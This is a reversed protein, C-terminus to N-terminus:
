YGTVVNRMEHIAREYNDLEEEDRSDWGVNWVELGQSLCDLGDLRGRPFALYEQRLEDFHRAMYIQGARFLPQLGKIRRESDKEGKPIYARYPITKLQPEREIREELWYRLMKQLGNGEILFLQPLWKENQRIIEDIIVNTPVQKLFVDLIYIRRKRVDVGTTIVAARSGTFRNKADAAPDCFSFLMLNDTHVIETEGAPLSVTLIKGEEDRIDYYKLYESRFYAVESSFPDNAYQAAYREPNKEQMRDFYDVTFGEPYIAKGDEKAGRRFVAIDGRQYSFPGTKVAEQGKGFFSEAFAYVDDTRWFTSPIDMLSESMPPIFLSELGTFWDITKGMEQPSYYEDEGILDDANIINYHRSVAAGRAGITDFAPEGHKLSAPLFLQEKSWIPSQSVDEWLEERFLWKLLRNTELQLKIKALHKQANTATDGVILIRQSSDRLISQIRHAVTVITTKFHSRPMQILRRNAKCQDLFVCLPGHTHPTLKDYGLIFKALYYTETLVRTRIQQRIDEPIEDLSELEYEISM